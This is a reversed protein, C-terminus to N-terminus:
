RRAAIPQRQPQNPKTLRGVADHSRNRPLQHLHDAPIRCIISLDIREVRHVAIEVAEIAIEAAVSQTGVPGDDLMQDGQKAPNAREDRIGTERVLPRDIGKHRHQPVENCALFPVLWTASKPKGASASSRLFASAPGDSAWARASM